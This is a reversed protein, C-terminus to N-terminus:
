QAKHKSWEENLVTADQQLFLLFTLHFPRQFRHIM